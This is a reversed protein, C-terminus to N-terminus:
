LFFLHVPATCYYIVGVLLNRILLYIFLYITTVENQGKRGKRTQGDGSFLERVVELAANGTSGLMTDGLVNDSV